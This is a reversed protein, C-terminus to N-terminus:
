KLRTCFDRVIKNFQVPEELNCIHGAEPIIELKAGPITDRLRYAVSLQSRQDAEGWILLTPVRINPLLDRTDAYASSLAMLRFGTPHFRSMIYSLEKQMEQTPSNGLMGPLYREVFEDSPLTSDRLCATLREEPVHVPLSGRWGAYTDALILSFVLEPYRLYFEQALIGGWSLGLIHAKKVQLVDLLKALCDAWDGLTFTEPPDSSHGTGPADWAIVKFDRSLDEIQPRWMQSDIIFGHLLVLPPGNGAKMYAVSLNNVKAHIM